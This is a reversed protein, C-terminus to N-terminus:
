ELIIFVLRNHDAGLDHLRVRTAVLLYVIMIIIMLSTVM